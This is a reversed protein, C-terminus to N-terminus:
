RGRKRSWRRGRLRELQTRHGNLPGKFHVLLLGAESSKLGIILSVKFDVCSDALDFPNLIFISGCSSYQNLTAKIYKREPPVLIKLFFRIFFFIKLNSDCSQKLFHDKKKEGNKPM